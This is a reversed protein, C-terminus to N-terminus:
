NGGGTIGTGINQNKAAATAAQIDILAGKVDISEELGVIKDFM